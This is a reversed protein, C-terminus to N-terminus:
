GFYLFAVLLEFFQIRNVLLAEWVLNLLFQCLYQSIGDALLDIRLFLQCDLLTFIVLEM